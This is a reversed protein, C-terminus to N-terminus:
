HERIRARTLTIQSSARDIGQALGVLLSKREALHQSDVIALLPLLQKEFQAQFSQQVKDAPSLLKTITELTYNTRIDITM